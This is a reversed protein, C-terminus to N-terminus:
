VTPILIFRDVLVDIIVRPGQAVSLLRIAAQGPQSHPMGTAGTLLRCPIALTPVDILSNPNSVMSGM